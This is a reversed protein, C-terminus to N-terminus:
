ALRRTSVHPQREFTKRTQFDPETDDLFMGGKDSSVPDLIVFALLGHNFTALEHPVMYHCPCRTAQTVFLCKRFGRYGVGSLTHITPSNPDSKGILFLAADIAQRLFGTNLATAPPHISGFVTYTISTRELFRKWPANLRDIDKMSIADPHKRLTPTTRVADFFKLVTHHAQSPTPLTPCGFSVRQYADLVHQVDVPLLVAGQNPGGDPRIVRALSRPKRKKFRLVRIKLVDTPHRQRSFRDDAMSNVGSHRKRRRVFQRRIVHCHLVVPNDISGGRGVKVDSPRLTREHKDSKIVLLWALQSANTLLRRTAGNKKLRSSLV